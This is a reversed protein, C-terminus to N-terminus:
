LWPQHPNHCTICEEGEAHELADIQKIAKKPSAANIAHCRMCFQSDEPIEMRNNEDDAIHLYGPGHCIECQLSEHVGSSKLEAISDHCMACDDMQVYKAENSAIELLATGRYHGYEGFSEPTLFYKLSVSIAIFFVFVLLLRKVQVPM